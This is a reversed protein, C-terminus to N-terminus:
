GSVSFKGSVWGSNEITIAGCANPEEQFPFEIVFDISMDVDYVLWVCSTHQKESVDLPIIHLTPDHFLNEPEPIFDVHSSYLGCILPQPPFGEAHKSMCEEICHVFGM